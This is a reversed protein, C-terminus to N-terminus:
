SNGSKRFVFLGIGLGSLVVPIMWTYSQAGALLLSTMDTSVILGGVVKCPSPQNDFFEGGNIIVAEIPITGSNFLTSAGIVKIAGIEQSTDTNTSTFLGRNEFSAFNELQFTGTFSGTGGILNIVGTCDNVGNAEMILVGDEFFEGGIVNIVGSNFLTGGDLSLIGEVNLTGAVLLTLDSPTGPVFWNDDLPITNIGTLTCTKTTEDWSSNANLGECTAQDEIIFFVAMAEQFGFLAPISAIM